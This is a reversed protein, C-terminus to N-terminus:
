SLFQQTVHGLKILNYEKESIAGKEKLEYLTNLNSAPSKHVMAQLQSSFEQPNAIYSHHFGTCDDARRQTRVHGVNLFKKLKPHPHTHTKYIETVSVEQFEKAWPLVGKEMVLHEDTLHWKENSKKLIQYFGLVLAVAGAVKAAVADNLVLIVGAAVLLSPLLYVIWHKKATIVPQYTKKSSKKM